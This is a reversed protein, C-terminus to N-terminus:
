MGLEQKWLSMYQSLNDEANLEQESREPEPEVGEALQNPAPWPLEDETVKHIAASDVDSTFEQASFSQGDSYSSLEDLPTSSKELM